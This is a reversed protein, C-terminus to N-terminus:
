PERLLSMLPIRDNQPWSGDAYRRLLSGERVQYFAHDAAADLQIHNGDYTWEFRGTSSAAETQRDIYHTTQHYSGDDRLTLRVEIGPCDACPLTGVFSAPLPAPFANPTPAAQLASTLLALSMAIHKIFTM